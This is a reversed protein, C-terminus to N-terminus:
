ETGCGCGEDSEGKGSKDASGDKMDGAPATETVKDGAAGEVADDTTAVPDLIVEADVALSEVAAQLRELESKREQDTIYGRLVLTDRLAIAESFSIITVLSPDIPKEEGDALNHIKLEGAEFKTIFEDTKRGSGRVAYVPIDRELAWIIEKWTAGGGNCALIACRVGKRMWSVMQNLYVLVDKAWDVEDEAIETGDKQILIARHQQFDIRDLADTLIVGGFEEDLSIQDTRPTTSVALCPYNAALLAPVYTITFGEPTYVTRKGGEDFSPTVKMTGGSFAVGKFGRFATLFFEPMAAIIDPTLGNCGGAFRIVVPEIGPEFPLAEFGEPLQTGDNVIDVKCGRKRPILPKRAMVRVGFKKSGISNKEVHASM